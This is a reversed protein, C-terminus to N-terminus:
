YEWLVRIMSTFYKLENFAKEVNEDITKWEFDIWFMYSFKGKYSPMSEIKTLNIWNTAFAWLCKYLSAPVDKTEFIISTKNSDWKYQVKSGNPVIALFRTTNWKQDQIKRELVNLWYLKAAMESAIAWVWKEDTKSVYKASLATDSYDEVKINKSKLYDYCQDLAPAQSYVKEINKIDNEKSCICHDVELYYDWIIKADQKLFEYLNFHISWMYSNEVPLVLINDSWLENWVEKFDQKWIVENIKINELGKEIELSAINSYSWPNWQYYIKM